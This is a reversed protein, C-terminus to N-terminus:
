ANQFIEDILGLPAGPEQEFCAARSGVIPPALRRRHIVRPRCPRPPKKARIPDANSTRSGTLIRTIVGERSIPRRSAIMAANRAGWVPQGHSRSCLNALM